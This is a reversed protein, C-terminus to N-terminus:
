EQDIVSSGFTRICAEGSLGTLQVSDDVPHAKVSHFSQRVRLPPGSIVSFSSLSIRSFFSSTPEVPVMDKFGKCIVNM